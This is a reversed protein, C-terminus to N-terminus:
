VQRYVCVDDLISNVTQDPNMKQPDVVPVIEILVVQYIPRTGAYQHTHRINQDCCTDSMADCSGNLCEHARMSEM